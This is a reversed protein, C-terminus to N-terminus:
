MAGVLVAPVAQVLWPKSALVELAGRNWIQPAMNSAEAPPPETYTRATWTPGCLRVGVSLSELPWYAILPSNMPKPMVRSMPLTRPLVAPTVGVQGPGHHVFRPVGPSRTWNLGLKAGAGPTFEDSTLCTKAAERAAPLGGPAGRAALGAPVRGPPMRAGVASFLPSRPFRQPAALRALGPAAALSFTDVGLPFGLAALKLLVAM